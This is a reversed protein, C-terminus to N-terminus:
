LTRIVDGGCRELVSLARSAQERNTPHVVVAWQGNGLGERVREILMAHDPRLTVPGGLMLGLIMGFAGVLGVTYYPSAVAIGVGALILTWGSLLGLLLGATGLGVLSRPLTSFVGRDEPELKGGLAPDAPAVVLVRKLPLRGVRVVREAAAGADIAQNFLAAVKTLSREGFLMAMM